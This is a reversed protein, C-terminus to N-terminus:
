LIEKLGEVLREVEVMTNYPAFSVRVPGGIDGLKLVNIILETALFHGNAVFVGKQALYKCIDASTKHKASFAVTPTKPYGPPVSYFELEPLQRLEADLYESLENEYRDIALMGAVINQRRGELGEFETIVDNESIAGIDAIFEVAEAVGCISEFNDTGTEFKLPAVDDNPIPKLTRLNKAVDSKTYLIGIHPGFFKYGSCVLFDTDTAKVDIPKHAAYHVSDVVTRAGVSHAMEIVTKVDNITGVANSAHGIAVVKTRPTIKSAFDEMKLILTEKDIEVSKVVMGREELTLWPSRNCEHDLDTIVIEDGPNLDRAIAQSIFFTNATSSAGFSVEEMSCGLFDAITQRAESLLAESELSTAYYGYKNANHNLLYDSMKDVVRQPVQTGAAGDFYAVPLGNVNRTIAPFQERIYQINYKM